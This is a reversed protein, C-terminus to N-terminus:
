AWNANFVFRTCGSLGCHTAAHMWQNAIRDILDRANSIAANPSCANYSWYATGRQGASRDGMIVRVGTRSVLRTRGIKDHAAFVIPTETRCGICDNGARAIRTCGMRGLM